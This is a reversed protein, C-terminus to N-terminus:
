LLRQAIGFSRLARAGQPRSAYEDGQVLLGAAMRGAFVDLSKHQAPALYDQIRTWASMKYPVNDADWLVRYGPLQAIAWANPGPPVTRGRPGILGIARRM